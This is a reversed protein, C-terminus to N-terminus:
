GSPSVGTSRTSVVLGTSWASSTRATRAWRPDAAAVYGARPLVVRLDWCPDDSRGCGCLRRRRPLDVHAAMPSDSGRETCCCPGCHRLLGLLCARDARGEPQRAAGLAHGPSRISGRRALPVRRIGAVCAIFFGIMLATVTAPEHVLVTMRLHRMERTTVRSVCRDDHELQSGATKM